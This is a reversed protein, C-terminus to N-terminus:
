AGLREAEDVGFIVKQLEVEREGADSKAFNHGVSFVGCPLGTQALTEMAEDRYRVIEDDTVPGADGPERYFFDLLEVGDAGIRKAERIFGPIDMRRAKWAKFFSWMSVGLHMLSIIIAGPIENKQKM